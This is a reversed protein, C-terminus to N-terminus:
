PHLCTLYDNGRNKIRSSRRVSRESEVEAEENSELADPAEFFNAPSDVKKGIKSKVKKGIKSKVKKGVKSKVKKAAKRFNKRRVAM